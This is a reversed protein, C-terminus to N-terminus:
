DPPWLAAVMVFVPGTKLAGTVSGGGCAAGGVVAESWLRLGDAVGKAIKIAAGNQPTNAVAFIM